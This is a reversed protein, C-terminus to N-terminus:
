CLPGGSQAIESTRDSSGDNVVLVDMGPFQTKVEEVVKGVSGEENFAPIIVLAKKQIEM